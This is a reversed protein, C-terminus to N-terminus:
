AWRGVMQAALGTAGVLDGGPGTTSEGFWLEEAAM